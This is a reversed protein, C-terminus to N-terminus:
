APPSAAGPDGELPRLDFVLFVVPADNAAVWVNAESVAQHARIVDEDSNVIVVTADVVTTELMGAASPEPPAGDVRLQAQVRNAEEPSSVLFFTHYIAPVPRHVTAADAGRAATPAAVARGGPRAPERRGIGAIVAAALALSCASMLLLMGVGGEARAANRSGGNM